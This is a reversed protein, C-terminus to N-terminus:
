TLFILYCTFDNKGCAETNQQLSFSFIRNRLILKLILNIKLPTTLCWDFMQSPTNKHFYNIAKLLVSWLICKSPARFVGSIKTSFDTAILILEDFHKLGKTSPTDVLLDCMSLCVQLQVGPVLPNFNYKTFNAATVQDVKNSIKSVYIILTLKAIM